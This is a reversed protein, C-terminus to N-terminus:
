LLVSNLTMKILGKKKQDEMRDMGIGKKAKISSSRIFNVAKLCVIIM